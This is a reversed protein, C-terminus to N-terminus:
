TGAAVRGGRERELGERFAALDAASRRESDAPLVLAQDSVVARHDAPVIFRPGDARDIEYGVVTATAREVEVVVDTVTGLSAGADTVVEKGIVDQQDGLAGNMAERDSVLATAAPVIVADNGIGHVWEAPLVGLLGPSLLGRGRLTFGIVRARAPDFLVDRVEGIATATDLTIVTRGILETARLVRM